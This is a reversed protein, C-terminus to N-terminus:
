QPNAQALVVPKDAQASAVRDFATAVSGVVLMSLLMSLSACLAKLRTSVLAPMAAAGPPMACPSVTDHPQPQNRHAFHTDM